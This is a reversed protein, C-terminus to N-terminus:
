VSHFIHQKIYKTVLRLVIISCQAEFYTKKTTTKKERKM